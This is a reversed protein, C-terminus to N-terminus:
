FNQSSVNLKTPTTIGNLSKGVIEDLKLNILKWVAQVVNKVKLETSFDTVCPFIEQPCCVLKLTAVVKDSTLPSLAGM